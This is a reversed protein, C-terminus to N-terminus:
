KSDVTTAIGAVNAVFGGEAFFVRTRVLCYLCVFCVFSVFCFFHFSVFCTEVVDRTFM